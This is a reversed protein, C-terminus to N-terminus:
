TYSFRKGLYTYDIRIDASAKSSETLDLIRGTFIAHLNVEASENRGLSDITHCLMPQEMYEGINFYVDINSISSNENNKITMTGLKNHEYYSFFVPFVPDTQISEVEIKQRGSQPNFRFVAGIWGSVGQYLDTFSDNISDYGLHYRYAGGTTLAFGPSLDLVLGTKGGFYPNSASVGNEYIGYTLGGEAGIQWSLTDAIRIDVGAGIGFSALTLSQAQTPEIGLSANGELFLLPLNSLLYQGGMGLSGGVKYTANESFISSRPGIPIDASPRIHVSFNAMSQGYVVTGILFLLFLMTITHHNRHVSVSM